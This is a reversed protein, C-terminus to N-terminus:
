DQQFTSNAFRIGLAGQTLAALLIGTNASVFVRGAELVLVRDYGLITRLRHAICILTQGQFEAQITHQIKQDTELDVSARCLINPNKSKSGLVAQSERLKMWFSSKPIRSWLGLLLCCLGRESVSIRAKLKSSPTWPSVPLCPGLMKVRDKRLSWRILALLPPDVFPTGYGQITMCLSRTWRLGFMGVSYLLTKRFLLYRAASLRCGLLRFILASHM